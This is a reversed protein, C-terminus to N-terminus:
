MGNKYFEIVYELLIYVDFFFFKFGIVVILDM